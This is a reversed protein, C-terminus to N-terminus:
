VTNINLVYAGFFLDSNEQSNIKYYYRSKETGFIQGSVNKLSIHLDMYFKM